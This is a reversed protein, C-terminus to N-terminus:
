RSLSPHKEYEKKVESSIYGMTYAQQYYDDLRKFNLRKSQPESLFHHLSMGSLIEYIATRKQHPYLRKPCEKRCVPGCHPCQITILRQSSVGVLTEKLDFRSIGLETMRHIAGVADFAHVTTLVLKGSLAARIAITATDKDRIEGVMIIDPDHRLIAKFGTYFSLDAQENVEMQVFQDNRKEVPDELTIIRSNYRKKAAMLLAYLTTTKGTGTPGSILILGNNYTLLSHLQLSAEPFLSLDSLRDTMNQPLLRIVLSEESAVPLTSFRLHVCDNGFWHNYAGNQPRRRDSIDMGARFKFHSILRTALPPPFFEFEYLHSNVRFEVLTTEDRPVFHIDSANVEWAAGLLTEAWKEVDHLLVGVKV